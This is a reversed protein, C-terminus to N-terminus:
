RRPVHSTMRGPVETGRFHDAESDTDSESSDVGLVRRWSVFSLGYLDLLVSAVLLLLFELEGSEHMESIDSMWDEAEGWMEFAQQGRKYGWSLCSM